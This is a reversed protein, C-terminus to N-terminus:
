DQSAFLKSVLAVHTRIAAEASWRNVITERANKRLEDIIPGGALVTEINDAIAAPDFFNALLGNGGSDVFERVPATDSGVFGCGTSLAELASWSLVFPVTLYVHVASVQLVKRYTKYPLAGTFHTRSLDISSQAMVERFHADTGHGAGYYVNRDGVVIAEVVPDRSQIIELAAMFQEFGRFPDAGRAVYTIVRDGAKVIKGGALALEAASDPKFLDIDIGDPVVEISGRIHAPFQAKQWETPSTLLDARALDALVPINLLSTIIRSEFPRDPVLFETSDATNNYFWECYKIFRADPFIDQLFAGTGWGTHSYVLDPAWGSDKLEQAQIAMSAAERVFLDTGFLVHDSPRDAVIESGYIFTRVGDIKQSSKGDNQGRHFAIVDNNGEQLYHRVIRGFQGPFYHHVFLIRM